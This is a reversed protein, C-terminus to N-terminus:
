ANWRTWRCCARSRTSPTFRTACPHRLPSRTAARGCSSRPLFSPAQDQALFVCPAPELQLGAHRVDASIGVIEFTPDFDMPRGAVGWGVILHKGIPDEGPFLQRALSQNIVAVLPTKSEDRADFDRGTVIPISMTRFYASSVVSVDGGPRDGPSPTPRDSRYYYTGSNLGSLPLAHISGASEVGPLARVRELVQDIFAARRASDSYRAPVLLMRITLVRESRFGPDVANLRMLSRAMLGAGVVLIMALAIESVVLVTRARRGSGVISRRGAYLSQALGLRGALVGPAVGFAIAAGITLAATFMLVRGDVSIEGARPLPFGAPFLSIIAPVAVGALLLGLLGGLGAVLLSEVVLQHILRGRSAGLALRVSIDRTQGAVRMLTLNVVNACAVLMVGLVALFLVILPRRIQGVTQEVLTVVRASWRENMSPREHATAAALSEMDAQAAQLTVGPRLRAVTWFNRGEIPATKPSIQLPVFLEARMGPFAFGPPMVGVIEHATGNISALRGIASPDGGYRQQWLAHTLVVTRPGGAVDEGPVITRGLLPAVGLVSFFEGTVRLGQVQEADGAGTLNMPLQHLAAIGLFSRNRARWDLYNQTQVVNNRQIGPPQEWVMVLRDPAPFPLPRLLVGNVVTFLATTFGIGLALTAAAVVVYVPNRALSRRALRLDQVIRDIM